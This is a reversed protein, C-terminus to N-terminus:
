MAEHIVKFMSADLKLLWVEYIGPLLTNTSDGPSTYEFQGKVVYVTDAILSDTPIGPITEGPLYIKPITAYDRYNIRDVGLPPVFSTNFV